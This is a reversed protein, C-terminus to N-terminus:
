DSGYQALVTTVSVDVIGLPAKISFGGRIYTAGKHGLKRRAEDRKAPSRSAARKKRAAEDEPPDPPVFLGLDYVEAYPVNNTIFVPVFPQEPNLSGTTAAALAAVDSAAGGEVEDERPAGASTLWNGRLRGRDVPTNRVLEKVLALALASQLDVVAERTEEVLDVRFSRLFNAKNPIGSAM